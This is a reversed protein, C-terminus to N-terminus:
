PFPLKAGLVTGFISGLGGFLASDRERDALAAELELQRQAIFPQQAQGFGAAVNGLGGVISGPLNFAGTVLSSIGSTNGALGLEALSLPGALGSRSGAIESLGLSALGLPDSLGSSGAQMETLAQGARALGLQEALTLQGHQAASRLSAASENFRGLAEIGATSSEFGPGLQERLMERLSSEQTELERELVPDVPLNGELADLSRQALRERIDREMSRLEATDRFEQRERRVQQLQRQLLRKELLARQRQLEATEGSTAERRDLEDLQEQLLRAELEERQADLPDTPLERVGTIQGDDGFVLEVGAQEAFIPLLLEQLRSQEVLMSRQQELIAAQQRQLEREEATPEPVDTDGGSM